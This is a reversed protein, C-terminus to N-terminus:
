AQLGGNGVDPGGAALRGLDDAGDVLDGELGVQQGQVRRDLGGAGAVGPAPEGDDGFFDAGQGQAAGLRRAARGPQDLIGLGAGRGADAGRGFDRAREPADDGADGLHVPQDGRHGFRGGPLRAPHGLHRGGDIFQAGRGPGRRLRAVRGGFLGPFQGRLGPFQAVQGPRQFPQDADCRRSRRCPGARRRERVGARLGAPPAVFRVSGRAAAGCGFGRVRGASAARLSLSSYRSSLSSRTSVQGSGGDAGTPM